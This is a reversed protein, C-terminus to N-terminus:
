IECYSDGAKIESVQDIKSYDTDETSVGGAASFKAIKKIPIEFGLKVEKKTTETKSYTEYVKCDDDGANEPCEKNHLPVFCEFVDAETKKNM